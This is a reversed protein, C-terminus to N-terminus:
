EKGFIERRIRNREKSDSGGHEHNRKQDSPLIEKTVKEKDSSDESSSQGDPIRERSYQVLNLCSSRHREVKKLGILRNSFLPIFEEEIRFEAISPFIGRFRAELSSHTYSFLAKCKGKKHGILGCTFGFEFVGEYWLEM